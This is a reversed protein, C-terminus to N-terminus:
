WFFDKAKEVLWGQVTETKHTVKDEVDFRLKKYSLSKESFEDTKHKSCNPPGYRMFKWGNKKMLPECYHRMRNSHASTAVNTWGGRSRIHRREQKGHKPAYIAKNAETAWENITSTLWDREIFPKIFIRWFTEINQNTPMRFDCIAKRLDQSTKPQQKCQGNIFTLNLNAAEHLVTQDFRKRVYEVLDSKIRKMESLM